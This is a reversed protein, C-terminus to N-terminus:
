GQANLKHVAETYKEILDEYFQRTEKTQRKKDAFLQDVYAQGEAEVLHRYYEAINGSLSVNCRYCSPRLNRLDYRLFLGCVSRALFHATHWNAGQLEVAGCTYCANGYKLRTLQKCLEWLQKRLKRLEPLKKRKHPKPRKKLLSKRVLRKSPKRAISRPKRPKSNPYLQVIEIEEM